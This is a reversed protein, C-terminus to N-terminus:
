GIRGREEELVLAQGSAVVASLTLGSLAFIMAAKSNGRAAYVIGVVSLLGTVLPAAIRVFSDMPVRKPAPGALALRRVPAIYYM